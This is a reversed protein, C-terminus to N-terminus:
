STAEIDRIAIIYERSATASESKVMRNIEDVERSLAAIRDKTEQSLGQTWGASHNLTSVSENVGDMRTELKQIEVMNTVAVSLAQTDM